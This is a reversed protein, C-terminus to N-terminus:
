DLIFKTFNTNESFAEFNKSIEVKSKDVTCVSLLLTSIECSKTAKESYIFKLISISFSYINKQKAFHFFFVKLIEVMHIRFKVNRLQFASGKQDQM